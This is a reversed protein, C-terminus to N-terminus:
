RNVTKIDTQFSEMVSRIFRARMEDTTLTEIPFGLVCTQYDGKYMVGASLNKEPYRLITAAGKGVPLLGDVREVQYCARNRETHFTYTGRLLPYPSSVGKVVGEGSANIGAFSCRLVRAAFTSDAVNGLLDSMVYAGSVLLKGRGACYAELCKQMPKPFAKYATPSANRGMKTERQKGLILDVVSYDSLRVLGGTVAEDSCSVFSYGAAAFAQGHVSPYDFSNGAFIRGAFDNNCDGHGNDDNSVWQASRRFEYQKGLYAIEQMYPVGGEEDYLFGCLSDAPATFSAPASLRDFGNVVLVVGREELARCVSLVESPFSEGGANLATIRYSYCVGPTIAHTFRPQKVVVGNDFDGRGIRTYVKYSTPRATQELTDVVDRWNLTVECAASLSASFHDPPLPQVVYPDGNQMTVYRLIGKYVARSVTFRFRPDLGYRMDAFNQHSLLELLMTPVDPVRAEIYSKNWMDRDSWDPEYTRRIDSVIQTRVIDTLDHASDKSKGNSYFAKGGDSMYIGLTGIISDGPTTGADSHFAFAMDLPIHLDQKLYNVWRGRSHVDDKYDDTYRSSSYISDPVGAWQMWYRAAEAFRPLGSVEAEIPYASVLPSRAINGMGGGIKVADATIVRGARNSRNSLRIRPAAYEGLYIWTGGGMTQNVQVVTEGGLHTITYYVEEASGPLTHYSVYVAYRGSDPMAPIWEAFSEEGRKVTVCQRFTGMTFPNEGNLYYEKLHAFGPSVGATWVEKGNTERYLSGSASRDNDVIVEDAQLGRERPMLVNAGAGELMTPTIHTGGTLR